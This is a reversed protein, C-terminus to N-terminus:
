HNFLFEQSSMLSWFVDELVSRRDDPTKAQALQKIMGGREKATPM